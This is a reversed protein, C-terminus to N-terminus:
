AKRNGAALWDLRLDLKDGMWFPYWAHDRWADEADPHVLVSLGDRNYMLWPIIEDFIERDFEIQYMAIPHPGVAQDRFRGMRVKNPWKNWVKERLRAATERATDDEGYYVHVHYYNIKTEDGNEFNDPANLTM